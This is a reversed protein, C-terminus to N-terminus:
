SSPTSCPQVGRGMLLRSRGGRFDLRVAAPANGTNIVCWNPNQTPTRSEYRMAPELQLCNGCNSVTMFAAVVYEVEFM